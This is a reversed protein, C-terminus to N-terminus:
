ITYEQDRGLGKKTITLNHPTTSLDLLVLKSGIDEIYLILNKYENGVNIKGKEIKGNPDRLIYYVDRGEEYFLYRKGKTSVDRFNTKGINISIDSGSIKGLHETGYSLTYNKLIKSIAVATSLKYYHLNGNNAKKYLDLASDRARATEGDSLYLISELGM